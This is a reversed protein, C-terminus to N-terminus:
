PKNEFVRILDCKAGRKTMGIYDTDPAMQSSFINKSIKLPQIQKNILKQPYMSSDYRVSQRRIQDIGSISSSEEILAKSHLPRAKLNATREM